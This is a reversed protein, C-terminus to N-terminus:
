IEASDHQAGSPLPLVNVGAVADSGCSQLQQAVPSSTSPPASVLNRVTIMAINDRHVIEESGSYGLEEMIAKSSKGQLPTQQM